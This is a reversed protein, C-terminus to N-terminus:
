FLNILSLIGILHIISGLLVFLHFVSHMWKKKKGIAYFLVGVTYAIGGFLVLLMTRLDLMMLAPYFIAALWGMVVYLIVTFVKTFNGNLNVMNMITGLALGILEISIMIAGYNTGPFAIACIPLYTGAILIYITNHDLLRFVRKYPSDPNIVHYIASTSYLFIMSLAYLILCAIQLSNYKLIPAVSIFLFLSFLGIGAGIAHSVWNFIEEGKSYTPIPKLMLKMKMTESM